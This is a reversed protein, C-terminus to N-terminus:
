REQLPRATGTLIAEASTFTDAVEMGRATVRFERLATESRSGRMRLVSVLRYLQSHLEVFRLLITGDVFSTLVEPPLRLEPGVLTSLEMSCFTTAGLARLEGFLATMFRRARQPQVIAEELGSLSDIFVRRVGGTRVADLLREALRDVLDELPFQWRVSLRGAEVSAHLGLGFSDGMQLLQAETENFGFYLCPEDAKLGAALYHLGCLTKGTGPTGLVLTTSGAPVGGGLMEDLQPVGTSLREADYGATWAPAQLRTETRPYVTVGQADISFSHRGPLFGSGRLKVVELERIARMHQQERHLEVIGDVMTETSVPRSRFGQDQLLITCGLGAGFAALQALFRRYDADSGVAEALASIGDIVLLGARQDRVSRWLAEQVGALGHEDLPSYASYYHLSSGIVDPRFFAFARQQALLRQTAESLLTMYVARGGSAAHHFCIQNCLVTKGSGPRGVILYLGGAPLGGQLVVDLGAVGTVLRDQLEPTAANTLL